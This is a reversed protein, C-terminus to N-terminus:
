SSFLINLYIFILKVMFNSITLFKKKFDQNIYGTEKTTIQNDISFTLNNSFTANKKKKKINTNNYIVFLM